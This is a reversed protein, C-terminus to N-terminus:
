GRTIYIWSLFICVPGCTNRASFSLLSASLSLSARGPKILTSNRRLWKTQDHLAAGSSKHVDTQSNTLLRNEEIADGARAKIQCIFDSAAKTGNRGPLMPRCQTFHSIHCENPESKSSRRSAAAAAAKTPAGRGQRWGEGPCWAGPRRAGAGPALRCGRGGLGRYVCSIGWSDM